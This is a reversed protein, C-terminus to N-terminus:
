QQPYAPYYPKNDRFEGEYILVGTGDFCKGHGQKLDNAWQGSYTMCNPCNTIFLRASSYTGQGYRYGRSYEGSYKDGNTWTFTGSGDLLGRKFTGEYANGEKYTYKGRGSRYGLEWNGVYVDGNSNKYTGNGHFFSNKFYGEYVDGSEFKYVGKGERMGNVWKGDYKDGNNFEAKGKGDPRENKMPGWYVFRTGDTDVLDVPPYGKLFYFLVALLAIIILGARIPVKNRKKKVPAPLPKPLEPIAKKQQEMKTLSDDTRYNQGQLKINNECDVMKNRVNEDYKVGLAERYKSQASKFNKDQFFLTDGEKVLKNFETNIEFEIHEQQLQRNDPFEKEMRVYERRAEEIRGQQYLQKPMSLRAEVSFSPNGSIYFNDAVINKLQAKCVPVPLRLKSLKQSTYNYLDTLSLMRNGSTIGNKFAEALYTTFYTGPADRKFYSSDDASTSALTFTGLVPEFDFVNNNGQAALGSHCADIFVIKQDAQSSNMMKEVFSYPIDNHLDEDINRTDKAILSLQNNGTNQGHGSYYIILTKINDIRSVNKLEDKITICTENFLRSINEYPIGVLTKDSLVRYMEDLNGAVPPIPSFNARDDYQSTGILIAYTHDPDISYERNNYLKVAGSEDYCTVSKTGNRQSSVAVRWKEDENTIIDTETGSMPEIETNAEGKKHGFILKSVAAIKDEYYEASREATFHTMGSIVAELIILGVSLGGDMKGPALPAPPLQLDFAELGDIKRIQDRFEILQEKTAPSLVQIEIKSKM